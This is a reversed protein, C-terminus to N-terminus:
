HRSAYSFGLGSRLPQPKVALLIRKWGEVYDQFVLTQVNLTHFLAFIFPSGAFRKCVSVLINVFTSGKVQPINM